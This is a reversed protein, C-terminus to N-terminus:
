NAAPLFNPRLTIVNGANSTLLELRDGLLRWAQAQETKLEQRQYIRKMKNQEVHNLCKEIVDPLVGLNGMLTAATRRLDHPTWKGGSLMLADKYQSKNSRVKNTQRDNIQKSISKDCVYDNKQRNMFVWKDSERIQALQEFQRLAFDSLYITHPKGNKSHDDPIFWTKAGFDVYQWQAKSLEGVHCCTSLMIWIAYETSQQFHADPLKKHLESIEQESLVRDHEIPKGGIKAKRISATPDFEIIVRDVAFRFMQRMLSLILKAMRNVGRLLLQDTIETIHGKRVDAVALNGIAPLVDKEFMRKIEKGNDKRNKLDTILWRNFLDNITILADQKALEVKEALQEQRNREKSLQKEIRPDKGSKLMVQYDDREKRADALAIANLTIWCKKGSIHYSMRFTKSGGNKVARISVYLSIGDSILREKDTATLKSFSLATLKNAPM